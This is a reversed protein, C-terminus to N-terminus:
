FLTEAAPSDESELVSAWRRISGDPDIRALRLADASDVRDAMVRLAVKRVQARGSGMGLDIATRIDRFTLSDAADLAGALVAPGRRSDLSAARGHLRDLTTRKRRLLHGAAWRLLPPEAPLRQHDVLRDRDAGRAVVTGSALDLERWELGLWSLPHRVSPPDAWLLRDALEDLEEDDLLGTACLDAILKATCRHWRAETCLLVASDVAGAPDERHHRVFLEVAERHRTSRGRVQCRVLLRHLDAVSAAARLEDLGDTPVDDM